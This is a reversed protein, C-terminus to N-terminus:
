SVDLRERNIKLGNLDGLVGLAIKETQFFERALAQIDETTVAEFSELSKEVSIQKGYVIEQQALVEARNGSDELGLLISSTVQEKALALEAETVGERVIKRLEAISLDIVEGVKEPSCGAYISFMGCDQFENSAAGVSYALGREERVKQWLRSSNGDGLISVLLSAAYRREDIASIWPAAIVLHAQELDRKTKLLIPSMPNPIPSQPNPIKSSTQDFFKRAAEVIQQHEINGAGAIVINEPSYFDAHFNATRDHNFTSVTKRTGTIPLGLAHDPFFEGTFLESLLEEPSDEVMKIEEIVVQRERKLEKEDFRPNVLLDALLDFAKLVNKDVVKIVFGTMEHSTYANFNGGLRDTEIAIDLATRRKTGKFVTHEIFHLIGNLEKPEHRSGKRLWFGITASRVDPMKETLITLGNSFRTVEINEKM